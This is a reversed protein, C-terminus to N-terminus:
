RSTNCSAERAIAHIIIPFIGDLMHGIGAEEGLQRFHADDANPRVIENVAFGAVTIADVLEQPRLVRAAITRELDQHAGHAHAMDNVLLVGGPKLVRRAEALAVPIDMQCLASSFMVADISGATLRTEHCDDLVSCFQEGVPCMALQHASVNMLIFRLDPRAAAMLRSVEGIGCGADLVLGDRAPAMIELLLGVHEADSAGYRHTQFLRHGRAIIADTERDIAAVDIPPRM